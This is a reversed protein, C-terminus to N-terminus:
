QAVSVMIGRGSHGPDPQYSAPNDVRLIVFAAVNGSTTSGNNSIRTAVIVGIYSSVSAPPQSSNGPNTAWALGTATDAYGKFSSNASFDGATVQKTWQAGWFMYDQGAKIADTLNSSNGGWIVFKTPQYVYLTQSTANSPLYYADGAIAGFM